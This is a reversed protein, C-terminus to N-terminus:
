AQEKPEKFVFIKSGIFNIVMTFPTAIMNSVFGATLFGMNELIPSYQKFRAVAEETVGLWNQCVYMICIAVGITFANVAIFLVVELATRKRAHRFTWISNFLYSNAVGLMYSVVKAPVYMVRLLGNLIAFAIWDVATNMVGVVIFKVFEMLSKRQKKM